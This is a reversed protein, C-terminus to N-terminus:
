TERFVEGALDGMSSELEQSEALITAIDLLKGEQSRTLKLYYIMALADIPNYRWLERPYDPLSKVQKIEVLTKVYNGHEDFIETHNYEPKDIFIGRLDIWEHRDNNTIQRLAMAVAMRTPIAKSIISLGLLSDDSPDFIYKLVRLQAEDSASLKDEEESPEYEDEVEVEDNDYIM